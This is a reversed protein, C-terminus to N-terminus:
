GLPVITRDWLTRCYNISRDKAPPMPHAVAGQFSRRKTGIHRRKAALHFAQQFRTALTPHGFGLPGAPLNELAALRQPGEHLNFPHLGRVIRGFTGDTRTYLPALATKAGLALVARAKDLAHHRHHRRQLLLLAVDQIVERRRM